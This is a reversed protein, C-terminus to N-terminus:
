CDFLFRMEVRVEPHLSHHVPCSLGARELRARDHEAIEKPLHIDLPLRGIKRPSESMEKVVEFYSGKLDIGNREAVLAMTTLVCSGLAAAVLDTPSFARGLGANDKPADTVLVTKSPGHEMEVRKDGLYKGTITVSM